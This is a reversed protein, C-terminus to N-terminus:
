FLEIDGEAVMVPPLKGAAILTEYCCVQNRGNNKAYYLAKDACLVVKDAGAEVNLATFGISLTKPELRPFSFSQVARRFRELLRGASDMDVNVLVAAFEEGGYRFLVDEHRFSRTMLRALLLLVEDGYQHGYLDNVQKFNDIDFLAFCNGRFEGADGARRQPASRQAVQRIREYFSQRNFLGTLPDLQSRSVLFTQNSYVRLLKELLQHPSDLERVGDVVLLAWVHHAGIVPVVVRPAAADASAVPAQTLVCKLYDPEDALPRFHDLEVDLVDYVIANEVNTDNFETDRNPNSIVFLRPRAGPVTSRVFDLLAIALEQPDRHRTLEVIADLCRVLEPPSVPSAM